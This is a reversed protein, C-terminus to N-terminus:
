NSRIAPLAPGKGATPFVKSARKWMSLAKILSEIKVRKYHNYKMMQLFDIPMHGTYIPVFIGDV